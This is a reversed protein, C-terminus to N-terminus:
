SNDTTCSIILHITPDTTHPSNQCSSGEQPSMISLTLASLSPSCTMWNGASLAPPGRSAVDGGIQQLPPHPPYDSIIPATSPGPYAEEATTACSKEM